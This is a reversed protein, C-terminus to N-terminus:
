REHDFRRLFFTQGRYETREIRGSQVLEDVLEWSAGARRLLDAVEDSRMPHVAVISAIDERADGSFGYGTGGMGTLPEVVPVLRSFRHVAREFQAQEPAASSPEATPRTPIGVFARTPRLRAVLEATADVEEDSDNLGRILMTDTVLEGQFSEAFLALGEVMAAFDLAPHPRSLRRWSPEHASDVKLSVWDARALEARVDARHILSSNTIVAIKEGLPRLEDIAEGLRADLTPEGDPVFAIHDVRGGRERLRGLREGVERAIRSPEYFTQREIEVSPTRGVQCYVCSYSCHKPPINNVGLSQGLRRSAVPGFAIAPASM